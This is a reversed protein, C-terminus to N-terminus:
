SRDVRIVGYGCRALGPDIGIVNM